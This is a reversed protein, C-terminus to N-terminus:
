LYWDEHDMLDKMFTNEANARGEFWGEAFLSSDQNRIMEEDMWTDFDICNYVAYRTEEMDTFANEHIYTFIGFSIYNFANGLYYVSGEMVEYRYVFTQFRAFAPSYAAWEYGYYRNSQGIGMHGSGNDFGGATAVYQVDYVTVTTDNGKNDKMQRTQSGDVYKVIGYYYGYSDQLFFYEGVVSDEGIGAGARDEEAETPTFCFIGKTKFAYPEISKMRALPLVFRIGGNRKQNIAENVTVTDGDVICGANEFARTRIEELGGDAIIVKTLNSTNMFAEAGISTVMSDLYVESIYNNDKFAGDAIIVRYDKLDTDRFSIYIRYVGGLDFATERDFGTVTITRAADDRTYTVGLINRTYTVRLYLNHDLTGPTYAQGLETIEFSYSGDNIGIANLIEDVTLTKGSKKGPISYTRKTAADRSDEGVIHVIVSQGKEIAGICVVKEVPTGDNETLETYPTRGQTFAYESVGEPMAARHLYIYGFDGETLRDFVSYSATAAKADPSAVRQMDTLSSGTYYSLKYSENNEDSAYSIREFSSPLSIFKADIGRFAGVSIAEVGEKVTLTGNTLRSWYTCVLTKYTIGDIVRDRFLEGDEYYYESGEALMLNSPVTILTKVSAPIRVPFSFASEGRHYGNMGEMYDGWLSDILIELGEPLELAKLNRMNWFSKEMVKLTDPLVVNELKVVAQFQHIYRIGDAFFAAVASECYDPGVVYMGSASFDAAVVNCGKVGDITVNESLFSIAPFRKVNQWEESGSSKCDFGIVAYDNVTGEIKQYTLYPSKWLVRVRTNGTIVFSSFDIVNGEEDLYSIDERDMYYPLFDAYEKDPATMTSHLGVPISKLIEYGNDFSVTATYRAYLNDTDQKGYKTGYAPDIYWGDFTLNQSEADATYEATRAALEELRIDTAAGGGVSISVHIPAFCAYVTLNETVVTDKTFETGEEFTATTYWGRFEYFEKEPDAPLAVRGDVADVTQTKGDVTFTVSVDKSGCAALMCVSVLLVVLCLAARTVNKRIKTM